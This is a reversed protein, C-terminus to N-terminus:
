TALDVPRGQEINHWLCWAARCLSIIVIESLWIIKYDYKDVEHFLLETAGGGMNGM